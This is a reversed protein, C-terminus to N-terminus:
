VAKSLVQQVRWRKKKSLPRTEVIRVTDGIQCENDNDQAFYKKTRKVYKHYERDKMLRTVAVVATKNMKNSVVVGERSKLRGRNVNSQNEAEVSKKM